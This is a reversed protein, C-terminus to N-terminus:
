MMGKRPRPKAILARGTKGARLRQYFTAKSIGSCEIWESATKEIGDIEIVHNNRKNNAQEKSTAWRCNEPCYDEEVNKRDISLADNYGNAFAWEAFISFSSRWDECVRIGRGGYLAYDKSNPNYCRTKIRKWIRYLRTGYLGHTTRNAEVGKKHLQEINLCGCSRTRGSTLSQAYVEKTNGCSCRCLWLPHGREEKRSFRVVTLRGFTMNSLDKM